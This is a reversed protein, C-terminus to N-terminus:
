FHLNVTSAVIAIFSPPIVKFFPNLYQKSLEESVLRQSTQANGMEAYNFFFSLFVSVLTVCM